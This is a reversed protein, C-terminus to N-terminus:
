RGGPKLKADQKAQEEGPAAPTTGPCEGVRRADYDFAFPAGGAMGQTELKLLQSSRVTLTTRGSGGGACAYHVTVTKADSDIVDRTCHAAPHQIQLLQAPDTVCVLRSETGGIEKLQWEGPAVGGPVAIQAAAAAVGAAAILGAVALRVRKSAM